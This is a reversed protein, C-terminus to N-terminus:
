NSDDTTNYCMNALNCIANWNNKLLIERVVPNFWDQREPIINWLLWGLYATELADFQNSYSDLKSLFATAKNLYSVNRSVLLKHKNEFHVSDFGPLQNLKTILTNCNEFNRLEINVSQDSKFKIQQKFRSTKDLLLLYFNEIIANLKYENNHEPTLEYEKVLHKLLGDFAATGQTKTFLDQVLHEVSIGVGDTKELFNYLYWVFNQDKVYCNVIRSPQILKTIAVLDANIKKVWTVSKTRTIFNHDKDLVSIASVDLASLLWNQYLGPLGLMIIESRYIM